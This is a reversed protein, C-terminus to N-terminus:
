NVNKINLDQFNDNILNLFMFINIAQSKKNLKHKNYYNLNM